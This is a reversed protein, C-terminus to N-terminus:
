EEIKDFQDILRSYEFNGSTSWDDFTELRHGYLSILLNKCGEIKKLLKEFPFNKGPSNTKSSLDCGKIIPADYALSLISLLMVSGDLQKDTMKEQNFDGEFCVGFSNNNHGSTHAGVADLPRGRYIEGNKAIFFHYGIGAWTRKKHWEHVDQITHPSKVESHHIIIERVYGLEELEGNFKLNTNHLM